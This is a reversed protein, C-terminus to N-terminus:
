TLTAKLCAFVFLVSLNKKNKNCMENETIINTSYLLAIVLGLFAPKQLIDDIPDIILLFAVAYAFIPIQLVVFQLLYYRAKGINIRIDYVFDTALAWLSSVLLASGIVHFTSMTDDPAFAAIMAGGGAIFCLIPKLSSSGRNKIRIRIALLFLILASVAMDISYIFSAVTNPLGEVSYSTGLYSFPYTWFDFRGSYFIRALTMLFVNVVLFVM